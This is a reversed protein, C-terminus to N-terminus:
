VPGPRGKQGEGQKKKKKTTGMKKGGGPKTPNCGRGRGKKELPPAENKETSEKGGQKQQPDPICKRFGNPGGVVEVPPPKGGGGLFFFTNKKEFFSIKKEGPVKEQTLRKKQSGHSTSKGKENSPFTMPPWFKGKWYFHKPLSKGSLNVFKKKQRSWRGGKIQRKGKKKKQQDPFLMCHKERQTPLLLSNGM